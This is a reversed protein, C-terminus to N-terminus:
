PVGSFDLVFVCVDDIQCMPYLQLQCGIYCNKPCGVTTGIKTVHVMKQYMYWKKNCEAILGSEYLSLKVAIASLLGWTAGGRKPRNARVLRQTGNQTVHVM